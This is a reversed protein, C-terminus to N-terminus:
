QLRLQLKMEAVRAEALRVEYKLRKADARGQAQTKQVDLQARRTRHSESVRVQRVSYAAQRTVEEERVIDAFKTEVKAKKKVATIPKPKPKPAIKNTDINTTVSAITADTNPTTPAVTLTDEDDSYQDLLPDTDHLITRKRKGLEPTLEQGDSGPEHVPGSTIPDVVDVDEDSDGHDTGFLEDDLEDGVNGIGTPVKSPRGAILTELDRYWPCKDEFTQELDTMLIM